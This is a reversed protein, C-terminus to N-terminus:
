RVLLSETKQPPPIVAAKLRCTSEYTQIWTLLAARVIDSVSTYDVGDDSEDNAIEKLRDFVSRRVRVRMLHHLSKKGSEVGQIGEM